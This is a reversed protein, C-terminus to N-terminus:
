EYKTLREHDLPQLPIGDPFHDQYFRMCPLMPPFVSRVPINWSAFFRFETTKETGCRLVGRVSTPIFIAYLPSVNASGAAFYSTGEGSFVRILTSSEVFVGTQNVLNRQLSQFLTEEPHLSGGPLQWYSQGKERLLLLNGQPDTLFALAFCQVVPYSSAIRYFHLDYENM